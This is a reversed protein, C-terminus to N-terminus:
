LSRLFSLSPMFFYEGGKMTVAQKPAPIKVRTDADGWHIPCFIPPREEEGPMQGIVLDVGPDPHGAPVVPFKANNAWNIQTFDFQQVISTNFAMFLLGVDSEPKNDIEGDNPNDARQGYTLGRRAMIHLREPDEDEKGGSGRPNTKRIHGFFPCKLGLKDSDYDFNNAVPNITGEASQLTAATGDESRGVIMAGAREEDDIEIPKKFKQGEDSLREAMLKEQKKFLQVNQELKRFIFYSGCHVEPNPAARDPVLARDPAFAPSWVSTGDTRDRQEDIEQQFFLPQSRGDVYGFHEIGDGNGNHLGLGEQRGTVEIGAVQAILSEVQALAADHGPKTADGVLIVGHLVTQFHPDWTKPDPDNLRSIKQMGKEFSPDDPRPAIGLDDYGVRTLGVGVYASGPTGDAKFLEIEKLHGSTSKMLKTAITALFKRGGEASTCRFFLLTMFDRVHPKLINPQLNDLMEQEAATIAKLDIPKLFPM